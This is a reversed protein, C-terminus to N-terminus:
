PRQGGGNGNEKAKEIIGYGLSSGKGIGINYPLCLNSKFELDFAMMKVGKYVVVHPKSRLETICVSITSDVYVGLGSAVSLLNGTLIRELMRVREVLSDTEVYKKYNESNLPLWHHLAYYRCAEAELKLEHQVFEVDEVQLVMEHAKGLCIPVKEDVVVKGMVQLGEQICVIAAKGNLRKYQILPYAYRYNSGEHNHLLVSSEQGVAAIVAGRFLPVEMAAIKNVFLITLVNVEMTYLEGRLMVSCTQVWLYLFFM